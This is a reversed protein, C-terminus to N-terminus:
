SGVADYTGDHWEYFTFGPLTADGKADFSVEGLVTTFTGTALAAAVADFDTSGAVATAAAWAQVAAYAYLTYGDARVGRGALAAVLAANAPDRAPDPMFTVLTGDASDGAAQWYQETMLADGGVPITAMGATRMASVIRAADNYHGGIYLVQIDTAKLRAVLADYTEAAPEYSENMVEKIGAENLTLRTTDALGKGYPTMDDIIAIRQDGFRQALFSGAVVGQQDDRAALRFTGPGARQDTYAPYTTAPTIQVVRNGAYVPAAALTAALCLHGVVFAAGKGAFQNAVADARKPECGDDLAELVLTEGNVGGRANIDAIAQATGERM